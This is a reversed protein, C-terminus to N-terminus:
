ERFHITIAINVGVGFGHAAIGLSTQMHTYMRTRM